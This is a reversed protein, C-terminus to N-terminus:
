PFWTAIPGVCIGLNPKLAIERVLSQHIAKAFKYGDKPYRTAFMRVSRETDEREGLTPALARIQQLSDWPGSVRTSLEGGQDRMLLELLEKPLLLVLLHKEDESHYLWDIKSSLISGYRKAFNALIMDAVHPDEPVEYAVPMYRRAVPNQLYHLFAEDGEGRTFSFGGRGGNLKFVLAGTQRIVEVSDM